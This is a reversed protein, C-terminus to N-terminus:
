AHEFPTFNRESIEERVTLRISGKLTINRIREPEHYIGLDTRATMRSTSEQTM